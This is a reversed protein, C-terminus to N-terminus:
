PWGEAISARDEGAAVLGKLSQVARLVVGLEDDLIAACVELECIRADLTECDEKAQATRKALLARDAEVQDVSAHAM